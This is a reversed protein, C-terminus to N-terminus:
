RGRFSQLRYFGDRDASREAGLFALVADRIEAPTEDRNAPPVIGSGEGAPVIEVRYAGRRFAAVRVPAVSVRSIRTQGDSKEVDVALIVSRERPPKRQHSLFNGLSYAVLAPGRASTTMEIPQLVHPHTGIVMDAGHAVAFAALKRQRPTPDTRYEAGWHFCAAVIDPSAACAARLATAVATETASCAAPHEVPFPREGEEEGGVDNFNVFAWRIGDRELFLPAAAAGNEGTLGLPRIGARDLIDATRLAGAAGRDRIHNNALTVVDIGAEVLTSALADPANFPPRGSFGARAGALVTELNAVAIADAFLHRVKRFSPSFDWEGNREAAALQEPHILIDGVFVIRSRITASGKEAPLAAATSLPPSPLFSLLLLLCVVRVRNNRRM